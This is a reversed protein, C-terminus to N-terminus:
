PRDGNSKISQQLKLAAQRWEDALKFLMARHGPNDTKEASRVCDEAHSEYLRLLDMPFGM